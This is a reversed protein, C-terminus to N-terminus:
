QFRYGIDLDVPVTIGSNHSSLHANSYHLLHMGVSFQAGLALGLGLRDQFAFHIGLNRSDIHTHNLYALGISVELYPLIPGQQRLNFRLVPAMSYISITSYYPKEHSSFHSYGADFYVQTKQWVYRKPHYNLMIQFGRLGEPEKSYLPYSFNAGYPSAVIMGPLTGLLAFLTQRFGKM